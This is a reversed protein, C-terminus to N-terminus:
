RSRPKGDPYAPAEESTKRPRGPRKGKLHALAKPATPRTALWGEIEDEGWTRTNTGTLQGPPFALDRVMDRLTPRSGCIQLDQLDRFRLRKRVM